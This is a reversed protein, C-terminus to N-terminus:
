MPCASCATYATCASCAGTGGCGSLVFRDLVSPPMTEPVVDLLSGRTYGAQRCAVRAVSDNFNRNCLPKWSRAGSAAVVALITGSVSSQTIPPNLPVIQTTIDMECIAQPPVIYPPPTCSPTPPPPPHPPLHPTCSSCRSATLLAAPRVKFVLPRSAPPPPPVGVRRVHAVRFSVPWMSNPNVAKFTYAGPGLRLVGRVNAPDAPATAGGFRGASRWLLLLLLLLLLV